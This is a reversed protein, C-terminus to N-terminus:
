EESYSSHAILGGGLILAVAQGIQGITHALDPKGIITATVAIGAYTSPEKAKRVLWGLIKKTNIAM